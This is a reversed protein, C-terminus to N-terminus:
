YGPSQPINIPNITVQGRPIPFLVYHPQVPYGKAKLLDFLRGFRTLDFWRHFEFALELRREELLRTRFSEATLNRTWVPVGARTRVRDVADYAEATPGGSENIAEALMLLVDAYRLIIVNDDSGGLGSSPLKYYKRVLFVNAGENVSRYQLCSFNRRSDTPEYSNVVSCYM